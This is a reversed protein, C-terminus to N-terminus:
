RAARVEALIRSIDAAAIPGFLFVAVQEGTASEIDSAHNSCVTVKRYDFGRGSRLRLWWQHVTQTMSMALGGHNPHQVYVRKVGAARAARIVMLVEAPSVHGTSLGLNHKAAVKLVELTEPLLRGNRSM